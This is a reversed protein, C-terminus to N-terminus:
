ASLTKNTTTRAGGGQAVQRRYAYEILMASRTARAKADQARARVCGRDMMLMEPAVGRVALEPPPCCVPGAALCARPCPRCAPFPCARPSPGCPLRGLVRRPSARAAPARAIAAAAVAPPLQARQVEATLPPLEFEDLDGSSMLAASLRSTGSFDSNRGGTPSQEDGTGDTFSERRRGSAGPKRVANSTGQRQMWGGKAAGTPMHAIYSLRKKGPSRAGGNTAQMPPSSSPSSQSTGGSGLDKSLDLFVSGAATPLEILGRKETEEGPETEGSHIVNHLERLENSEATEHYHYHYTAAM